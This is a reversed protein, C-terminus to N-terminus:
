SDRRTTTRPMAKITSMSSCHGSSPRVCLSWHHRGSFSNRYLHYKIRDVILLTGLAKHSLRSVGLPLLDFRNCGQLLDRTVAYNSMLLMCTPLLLLIRALSRALRLRTMGGCRVQKKSVIEQSAIRFSPKELEAAHEVDADRAIAYSELDMSYRCRQGQSLGVRGVKTTLLLRLLQLSCWTADLGTCIILIVAASATSSNMGLTRAPHCHWYRDPRRTHPLM